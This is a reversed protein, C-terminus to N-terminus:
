IAVFIDQGTRVAAEEALVLIRRCENLLREEREAQAALGGDPAHVDAYEYRIQFAAVVANYAAVPLPEGVPIGQAEVFTAFAMGDFDDRRSCAAYPTIQTGYLDASWLAGPPKRPLNFRTTPLTM